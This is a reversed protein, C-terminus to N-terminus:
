SRRAGPSVTAPKAGVPSGARQIVDAVRREVLQPHAHHLMHGVGPVEDFYSNHLERNLRRSQHATSVVKDDTGAIVDIPIQLEGYRPSLRAAARPMDVTDDAVSRLQSPRSAMRVSYQQLFADTPTLPSFMKRFVLPAAAHSLLPLLTHRFVDGVLPLAVLRQMAADMRTTPYYYGGILVLGAIADPEELALSLAVLTAWSHAVIVPRELRLQNIFALLTRAEQEPSWDRDPRTSRGFGPRDLAIVRHSQALQRLLGSSDLEEIMNGNGHLVVVPPGSGRDVYHIQMTGLSAFKGVPRRENEARHSLNRVLVASAALGAAGFLAAKTWSPLVPTSTRHYFELNM